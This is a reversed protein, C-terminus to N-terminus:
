CGSAATVTPTPSRCCSATPALTSFRAATRGPQTWTARVRTAFGGPAAWRSCSVIATPAASAVATENEVPLSLVQGVRVIDGSIGNAARLAAVTTGNRRAIAGLTDGSRVPSTPGSPTAAVAADSSRQPIILVRGTPLVANATLQNAAVIEQVSIGHKKSVSWLSDGRVVAYTMKAAKLESLLGNLLDYARRGDGAAMASEAERLRASQDANLGSYTRAQGLLTQSEGVLRAQERAQQEALARRRAEEASAQQAAAEAEAQQQAPTATTGSGSEDASRTACGTGVLAALALVFFRFRRRLM